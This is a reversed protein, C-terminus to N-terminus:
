ILHAQSRPISDLDRYYFIVEGTGLSDVDVYIGNDCRLAFGLMVGDMGLASADYTNTPVVKNAATAADSDNYVTIVPDNSGDKGILVGALYAAKTTVSGDTTRRQAVMHIGNVQM